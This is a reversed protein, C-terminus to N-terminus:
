HAHPKLAEPAASFEFGELVSLVVLVLIAIGITTIFILIMIMTM